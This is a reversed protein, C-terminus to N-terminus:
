HRRKHRMEQLVGTNAAHAARRYYQMQDRMGLNAEEFFQETVVARDDPCQDLAAAYRRFLSELRASLDDMM